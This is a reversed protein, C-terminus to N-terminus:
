EDRSYVLDPKRSSVARALIFASLLNKMGFAILEFWGSAYFDPAKVRSVKFNKEIGFHEFFDDQIANYRSPYVLELDVGPIKAFNSCMRAIQQGYAKETPLRQNSVFLLKM